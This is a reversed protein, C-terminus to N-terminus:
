LKKGAFSPIAEYFMEATIGIKKLTEKAASINQLNHKGTIILPYRKENAPDVLFEKGDISVGAHTKYPIYMMDVQNVKTLAGIVPELDFYILVGGKPTSSEFLRFQRVYEEKSPYAASEEWEIGSIVGIHHQYKLFAPTQDLVSVMFDQGEIIILPAGSLKVPKILGPVQKAVVYDFVRKHFQLVHIILLTIMTKGYSGAVVVRHKDKSLQFIYEPYSYIRIALKQAGLLEPNDRVVGPGLIIADLQATVKEPFWGLEPALMSKDLKAKADDSLNQDSGTIINGSEALLVALDTMVLEGIGILHLRKPKSM